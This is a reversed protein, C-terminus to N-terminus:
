RKKAVFFHRTDRLGDYHRVASYSTPEVTRLAQALAIVLAGVDLGDQGGIHVTDDGKYDYLTFVRGGYTGSFEVSTKYGDSAQTPDQGSLTILRAVIEEFRFDDPRFYGRLSTGNVNRGANWNIQTAM